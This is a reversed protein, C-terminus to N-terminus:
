VDRLKQLLFGSVWKLKAAKKNNEMRVLMICNTLLLQMKGKM